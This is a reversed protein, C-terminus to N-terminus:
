VKQRIQKERRVYDRITSAPIGLILGTAKSSYGQQHLDYLINRRDQSLSLRARGRREPFRIWGSRGRMDRDRANDKPTGDYLHQPNCCPPNDCHHLVWKRPLAGTHLIFALVHAYQSHSISAMRCRGYEYGPKKFRCRQWEWCEDPDATIDVHSWFQAKRKLTYQM